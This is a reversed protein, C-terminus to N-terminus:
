ASAFPDDEDVKQKEIWARAIKKDEDSAADLSWAKANGAQTPPLQVLRGLVMGGNKEAKRLQNVLVTQSIWMSELKHPANLPEDYVHTVEGDKDLVGKIPDGDLFTVDATMRDHPILNGSADKKLPSTANKTLATPTVLLLRGKLQKM